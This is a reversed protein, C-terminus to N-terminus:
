RSLAILEGDGELALYSVAEALHQTETDASTDEEVMVNAGAATLSARLHASDVSNFTTLAAMFRPTRTFNQEFSIRYWDQTVGEATQGTEYLHGNWTGKGPTIALWGIMEGGHPTTKAEEEELTVEFGTATPNRHRTKVWHTDNVTQVQSFVVPTAAFPHKFTVPMWPQLTSQDGTGAATALNGVELFGGNELEWVGVELVMYSVTEPSHSGDQNPAEQIYLTFHDPQVETLRVVATQGENRSLPQAFVVPNVYTQNLKVTQLHHTLASIQGVEGMIKELIPTATATPTPTPTSTAAPTPSPTPTSTSTSTPTPQPAPEITATPTFITTATSPVAPRSAPPSTYVAAYDPIDALGPGPAPLHAPNNQVALDLLSGVTDTSVTQYRLVREDTTDPVTDPPLISNFEKTGNVVRGVGCFPQSQWSDGLLSDPVEWSIMRPGPNSGQVPQGPNWKNDAGNWSQVSAKGNQHSYVVQYEPKDTCDTNISFIFTLPQGLPGIEGATYFTIKLTANAEEVSLSTVDYNSFPVDGMRDAIVRQSAHPQVVLHGTQTGEEVPISKGAAPGVNKWAAWAETVLVPATVGRTSLNVRLPEAQGDPNLESTVFSVEQGNFGTVFTSPAEASLFTTGAPLPLHINLDWMRGGTKTPYISYILIDNTVAVSVELRLRSPAPSSWDLIPKTIDFSVDPNLYDGPMDGKWSIWAHTTFVTQQPDTVEVIFSADQISKRSLVAAFFTIEQGDFSVSTTDPATGELYRTGPPLPIKITVDTMAGQVRSAFAIKYSIKGSEYSPTLRFTFPPWQAEVPQPRLALALTIVMMLQIMLSLKHVKQM